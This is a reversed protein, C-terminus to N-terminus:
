DAPHKSAIHRGLNRFEGDCHPCVKSEHGAGVPPTMTRRIAAEEDPNQAILVEPRDEAQQTEGNLTRVMRGTRIAKPYDRHEYRAVEGTEPDFAYPKGPFKEAGIESPTRKPRATETMPIM